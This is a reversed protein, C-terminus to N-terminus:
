AKGITIWDPDYWCSNITDWRRCQLYGNYRRYRMELVSARTEGLQNNCDDVNNSVDTAAYIVSGPITCGVFACILFMMLRKKYGIKM